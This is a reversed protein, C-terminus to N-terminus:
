AWRVGAHVQHDARAHARQGHCEVNRGGGVVIIHKENRRVSAVLNYGLVRPLRDQRRRRGRGSWASANHTWCKFGGHYRFVCSM